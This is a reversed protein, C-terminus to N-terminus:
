NSGYATVRIQMNFKEHLKRDFNETFKISCIVHFPWDWKGLARLRPAAASRKSANRTRIGGPVHNHTQQSPETNDPLRQSPGIERGFSDYCSHQTM